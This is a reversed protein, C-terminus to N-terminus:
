EGGKRTQLVYTFNSKQSNDFYIRGMTWNDVWMYLYAKTKQTVPKEFIKNRYVFDTMISVLQIEVSESNNKVWFSSYWGGADLLNYIEQPKAIENELIITHVRISDHPFDTEIKLKLNALGISLFRETKIENFYKDFDLDIKAFRELAGSIVADNKTLIDSSKAITSVERFNLFDQYTTLTDSDMQYSIRIRPNTLHLVSQASEVRLYMNLTDIFYKDLTDLFTADGFELFTTADKLNILDSNMPVLGTKLIIGIEIRISDTLNETFNRATDNNWIIGVKITSDVAAGDRLELLRAKVSLDNYYSLNFIAADEGWNGIVWWSFRNTNLSDVFPYKISDSDAISGFDGELTITNYVGKMLGDQSKEEIVSRGLNSSDDLGSCSLLSLVVVVFLVYFVKNVLM